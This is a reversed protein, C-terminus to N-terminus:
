WWRARAGARRKRVRTWLASPVRARARAEGAIQMSECPLVRKCFFLHSAQPVPWQSVTPRSAARSVDPVCVNRLYARWMRQERPGRTMWVSHMCNVMGGHPECIMIVAFSIFAFSIFVFSVTCLVSDHVSRASSASM